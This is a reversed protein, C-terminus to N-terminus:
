DAGPLISIHGKFAAPNFHTVANIFTFLPLNEIIKSFSNDISFHDIIYKLLLKEFSSRNM